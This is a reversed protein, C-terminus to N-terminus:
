GEHYMELLKDWIDKNNITLETKNKGLAILAFSNIESNDYSQWSDSMPQYLNFFNKLGSIYRRKVTEEPVFHGGLKVRENVRSIALGSNKLWLFFLHFRYGQEKLKPIWTSFKRSALTTEFAFSVKESALTHIRDLMVRGAQIGAKGPQFASLGQAIVDANVFSDM